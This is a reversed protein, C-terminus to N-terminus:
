QMKKAKVTINLTGNSQVVPNQIIFSQVLPINSQGTFNSWPYLGGYIGCDTGDGSHLHGVSSPQLTWNYSKISAYAISTGPIPLAPSSVVFLPDSQVYNGTGSGPFSVASTYYAINNNYLCTACKGATNNYFINNNVNALSSSTLDYNSNNLFLNNTVYISNLNMNVLYGGVFINNTVTLNTAVYYGSITSTIYSDKIIWNNGGVTISQVYCRDITVNNVHNTGFSISYLNLGILKAGSVGGASVIAASDFNLYNINTTYKFDTNNVDYGAGILTLKKNVIYTTTSYTNPSGQIYITDGSSAATIAPTIDSYQAPANSNNSVTYVKANITTFLGICTVLTFLLKKM